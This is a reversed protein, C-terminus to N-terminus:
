LNRLRAVDELDAELRALRGRVSLMDDSSSKLESKLLAITHEYGQTTRILEEVNSEFRGYPKVMNRLDDYQSEIVRAATSIEQTGDETKRAKMREEDTSSERRRITDAAEEVRGQLNRTRGALDADLDGSRIVGRLSELAQSLQIGSTETRGGEYNLRSLLADFADLQGVIMATRRQLQEALEGIHKWSNDELLEDLASPEANEHDDEAESVEPSEVGAAELAIDGLENQAHAYRERQEPTTPLSEGLQDAYYSQFDESLADPHAQKKGGDVQSVLTVWGDDDLMPEGHENLKLHAVDIAGSNRPM